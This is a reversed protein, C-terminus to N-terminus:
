RGRMMMVLMLILFIMQIMSSQQQGPTVDEEAANSPQRAAMTAKMRAQQEPTFYAHRGTVAAKIVDPSAGGIDLNALQPDALIVAPDVGSQLQLPGRQPYYPQTRYITKGPTFPLQPPNAALRAAVRANISKIQEPTPQFQAGWGPAPGM